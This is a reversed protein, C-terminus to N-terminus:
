TSQIMIRSVLLFNMLSAFAITLKSLAANIQDTIVFLVVSTPCILLVHCFGVLLFCILAFSWSFNLYSVEICFLFPMLSPSSALFHKNVMARGEISNLVQRALIIIENSNSPLNLKLKLWGNMVVLWKNDLCKTPGM